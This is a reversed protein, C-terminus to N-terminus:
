KLCSLRSAKVVITYKLRQKLFLFVPRQGQTISLSVALKWM